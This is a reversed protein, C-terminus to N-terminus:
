ALTKTKTKLSTAGRQIQRHLKWNEAREFIKRLASRYGYASGVFMLAVMVAIWEPLVQRFRLGKQVYQVYLLATIAPGCILATHVFLERLHFGLIAHQLTLSNDWHHVLTPRRGARLEELSPESSAGELGLFPNLEFKVYQSIRGMMYSHRAHALAFPVTFFALWVLRRMDGGFALGTIVGSVTLSALLVQERMTIRQVAEARVAAYFALALARQEPTTPDSAQRDIAHNRTLETM